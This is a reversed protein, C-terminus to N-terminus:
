AARDTAHSHEECSGRKVDNVYGGVIQVFAPAAEPRRVNEQVVGAPRVASAPEGGVARRAVGNRAMAQDVACAADDLDHRIV